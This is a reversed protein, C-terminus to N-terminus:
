DEANKRLLMYGGVGIIVIAWVVGKDFWLFLNDFLLLGGFALLVIGVLQKTKKQTFKGSVPNGDEDYVDQDDDTGYEYGVPMEPVVMAAIIYALVGGGGTAFTILAFALRILSPDLDFYEGIGACVGSVMKDNNSRFLRKKM